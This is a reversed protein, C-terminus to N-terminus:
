TKLNGLAGALDISAARGLKVEMHAGDAVIQSAVPQTFDLVLRGFDEHEAGRAAVPQAQAEQGVSLMAILGLMAVARCLQLAIPARASPAIMSLRNERGGSSSMALRMAFRTARSM